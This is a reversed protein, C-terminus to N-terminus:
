CKQVLVATAGGGGNCIAAIGYEGPQLQHVLTVVIRAGSCGIPHGLAVAGGRANVQAPDLGLSDIFAMATVSFAENVEWRAIQEKRVGSKQLLQNIVPFDYHSHSIPSHPVFWNLLM